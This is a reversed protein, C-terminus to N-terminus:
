NLIKFVINVSFGISFLRFLTASVDLRVDLWDDRRVGLTIKQMTMVNMEKDIMQGPYVKKEEAVGRIRPKGSDKAQIMKQVIAPKVM